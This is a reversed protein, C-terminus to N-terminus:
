EIAVVQHIAVQPTQVTLVGDEYRWAPAIGEPELSVKTPRQPRRVQVQIDLVPQIQETCRYNGDLPRDGHHNVLHVLLRERGGPAYEAPQRMLTVEAWVPATVKVAPENMVVDLLNVFVQKLNWQNKAQYARFIDSAIYCAWGQGVRRATIAPFGSDEGVPSWRLLFRGDARLYIKRLRALAQVDSAVPSAFVTTAEALHPMDLSGAQLRPDAVEIYAHTQDYTAKYRLGLLDELIFRGTDAHDADLTGTLATAILVGGAKVWPGLAVALAPSLYRQDPLIVARYDHLTELLAQEHLLHCPIMSETLLRHAGRPSLEDLFLTPAAGTFHASTSHLVAVNPVPVAGILLPEREAVFALTKGLEGMVAPAVDFRHTMQYGIWTL